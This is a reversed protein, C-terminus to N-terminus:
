CVVPLVQLVPLRVDAVKFIVGAVKSGLLLKGGMKGM